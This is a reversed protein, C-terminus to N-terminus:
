CWKPDAPPLRMLEALRSLSAVESAAGAKVVAGPMGWILSSQRDQVAVTAGADTLARAGITGDEGLGTLVIGLAQSGYLAAVSAFLPDIAPRFFHVPPATSLRLVPRASRREVLLHFGGPALYVRGAVPVEGDVAEHCFLGTQRSLTAALIATLNGPMHQCILIPADVRGRSLSLLEAIAEPGGTSAGIAIVKDQVM